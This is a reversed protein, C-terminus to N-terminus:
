GTAADDREKRRPRTLLSHQYGYVLRFSQEDTFGAQRLQQYYLWLVGVFADLPATPDAPKTSGEALLRDM